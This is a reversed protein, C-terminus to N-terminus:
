IFFTDEIIKITHISKGIDTNADVDSIAAVSPLLKM